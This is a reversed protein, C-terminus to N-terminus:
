GNMVIINVETHCHHPPQIHRISVLTVESTLTGDVYINAVFKTMM